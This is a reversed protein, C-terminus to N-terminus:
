HLQQVSADSSESRGIECHFHVSSVSGRQM